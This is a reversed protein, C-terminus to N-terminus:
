QIVWRLRAAAANARLPNTHKEIFSRSPYIPPQLTFLNVISLSCNVITLEVVGPEDGDM